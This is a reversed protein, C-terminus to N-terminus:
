EHKEGDTAAIRQFRGILTTFIVALIMFSFLMEISCLIKAASTRPSIDGYGVTAITVINFYFFDVLSNSSGNSVQFSLSNQKMLLLQLITFSFATYLYARLLHDMLCRLLLHGAPNTGVYVLSELRHIRHLYIDDYIRYKVVRGLTWIALAAGVVGYGHNIQFTTVYATTFLVFNALCDFISKHLPARGTTITEQRELLWRMAQLFVLVVLIGCINQLHIGLSDRIHTWSTWIM